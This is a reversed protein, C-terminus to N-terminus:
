SRLLKAALGVRGRVGLKRCARSAYSAITGQTLGLRYAIRKMSWGAILHEAVLREQQSLGCGPRDEDVVYAVLFHRGDSDFQDVLTWRSDISPTRAAIADPKDRSRSRSRQVRQVADRLQTRQDVATGFADLLKGDPGFIAEQVAAGRFVAERFRFATALHMAIAEWADILAEPWADAARPVAASIAIVHGDPDPRGLSIADMGGLRELWEAHRLEHFDPGMIQRDSVVFQKMRRSLYRRSQTAAIRTGFELADATAAWGRSHVYRDGEARGVGIIADRAGSLNSTVVGLTRSLWEDESPRADYIADAIHMFDPPNPQWM